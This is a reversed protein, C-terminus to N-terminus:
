PCIMTTITFSPKRYHLLPHLSSNITIAIVPPKSLDMLLNVDRQVFLVVTSPVHKVCDVKDLSLPWYDGKSM